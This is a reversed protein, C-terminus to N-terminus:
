LLKQSASWSAYLYIFAMDCKQLATCMGPASGDHLTCGIIHRCPHANDVLSYVTQQSNILCRYDKRRSATEAVLVIAVAEGVLLYRMAM